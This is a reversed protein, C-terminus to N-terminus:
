KENKCYKCWFSDGRKEMEPCGCNDCTPLLKNYAKLCNKCTCNKIDSTLTKDVNEGFTESWEDSHLNCYTITHYDMEASM